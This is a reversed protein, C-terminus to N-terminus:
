ELERVQVKAGCSPCNAKVLEGTYIWEYGCRDCKSEIGDKEDEM